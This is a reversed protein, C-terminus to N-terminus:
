LPLNCQCAMVVGPSRQPLKCHEGSVMTLQLAGGSGRASNIPPDESPFSLSLPLSACGVDAFMDGGSIANQLYLIMGLLM